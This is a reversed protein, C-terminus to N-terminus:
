HLHAANRLRLDEPVLVGLRERRSELTLEKLVPVLVRQQEDLNEWLVSSGVVTLGLVVVAGGGAGGREIHFTFIYALCFDSM